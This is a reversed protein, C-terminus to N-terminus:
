WCSKAHDPRSVQIIHMHGLEAAVHLPSVALLEDKKSLCVSAPYGKEREAAIVRHVEDLSGTEVAWHITPALFVPRHYLIASTM